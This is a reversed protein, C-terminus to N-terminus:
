HSRSGSSPLVSLKSSSFVTFNGRPTSVTPSVEASPGVSAAGGFQVGTQSKNIIGPQGKNVELWANHRASFSPPGRHPISQANIATKFILSPVGNSTSASRSFPRDHSTLSKHLSKEVVLGGPYLLSLRHLTNYKFKNLLHFINGFDRFGANCTQEVERLYRVRPLQSDQITKNLNTVSISGVHTQPVLIHLEQTRTLGLSVCALLAMYEDTAAMVSFSTTGLFSGLEGYPLSTLTIRAPSTYSFPTMIYTGTANVRRKGLEVFDYFFSGNPYFKIKQCGFTPGSTFIFSYGASNSRMKEIFAENFSPATQHSNCVDLHPLLAQAGVLLSSLAVLLLTM